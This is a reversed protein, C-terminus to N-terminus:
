NRRCHKMTAPFINAALCGKCMVVGTPPVGYYAATRKNDDVISVAVYTDKDKGDDGVVINIVANQLDTPTPAPKNQPKAVGEKKVVTNAAPTPAVTKSTIPRLVKTQSFLNTGLFMATIAFYFKTKM